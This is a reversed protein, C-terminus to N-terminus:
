PLLGADYHSTFMGPSLDSAPIFIGGDLGVDSDVTDDAGVDQLTFPGAGFFVNWDQNPDVFFSWGGNANTVRSSVLNVLSSDVLFVVVGPVTPEGPDQIGDQDFDFWVTDGIAAMTTGCDLGTLNYVNM